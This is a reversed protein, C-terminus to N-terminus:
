SEQSLSKGLKFRKGDIEREVVDRAPEARYAWAGRGPRWRFWVFMRYLAEVPRPMTTVQQLNILVDCRDFKRSGRPRLAGEKRNHSAFDSDPWQWPTHCGPPRGQYRQIWSRMLHAILTIRFTREHHVIEVRSAAVEAQLACITELIQQTTVNDGRPPVVGIPVVTGQRTSRM